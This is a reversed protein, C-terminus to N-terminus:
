GGQETQAQDISDRKHELLSSIWNPLNYGMRKINEFISITETVVVLSVIATTAADSLSSLGPLARFCLASSIVAVSYSFVKVLARGFKASSIAEGNVRAAVMGTMTDIVILLVAAMAASRASEGPFVYAVAGTFIAIASKVYSAEAFLRVLYTPVATQIDKM